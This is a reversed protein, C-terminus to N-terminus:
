RPGGQFFGRLSPLAAGDGEQEGAPGDDEPCEAEGFVEDLFRDVIGDCGAIADIGLQGVGTTMINGWYPNDEEGQRGIQSFGYFAVGGYAMSHAIDVQHRDAIELVEHLEALVRDIRQREDSVLDAVRHTSSATAHLFDQLEGRRQALTDLTAGFDDIIAVLDDDSDAAVDVVVEARVILERLDERQESLMHAFRSLGDLLQGFEDRQGETVDALAVILTELADVDADRLLAVTEDGLDPIDVLSTTREIPIRPDDEDGLLHEWDRGALLEVSRRGLMNRLVVRAASDRPLDTEVVMEVVVRDGELRVDDVAGARVGAVLVDDGPQLGESNAFEAVIRDGRRFLDETVAIAFVTALGIVAAAIVGVWALNRELLM